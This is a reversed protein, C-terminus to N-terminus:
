RLKQFIGQYGLFPIGPNTRSDFRKILTAPNVQPNNALRSSDFHLTLQETNLPGTSSTFKLIGLYPGSSFDYTATFTGPGQFLLQVPDEGQIRQEVSMNITYSGSLTNEAFDPAFVLNLTGGNQLGRDVEPFAILNLIANRFDVEASPWSPMPTSYTKFFLRPQSNLFFTLDERKPETSLPPQVTSFSSPYNLLNSGWYLTNQTQPRSPTVLDFAGNTRDITLPLEEILGPLFNQQYGEMFAIAGLGFRRIKIDIIYMEEQPEQQDNTAANSISRIVNFGPNNIVQGFATYLGNFGPSAVSTIFFRSGNRNPGQTEMALIGGVNFPSGYPNSTNNHNRVVEDQFHYGPNELSQFRVDSTMGGAFFRLGNEVRNIRLLRYMPTEKLRGDRADVWNRPYRLTIRYKTPNSSIQQLRIRDEGTIDAHYNSFAIGEVGGIRLDGQYIGYFGRMTPTREIRRVSLAQRGVDSEATPLYFPRGYHAATELFPANAPTELIDDPKGALQIFNAVALPANQYDLLMTFDGKTTSFDAYIQGLCVGLLSLSFVVIRLFFKM